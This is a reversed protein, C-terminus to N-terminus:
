GHCGCRRVRLIRVDGRAPRPKTQNRHARDPWRLPRDLLWAVGVAVLGVVLGMLAAAAFYLLILWWCGRDARRDEDGTM